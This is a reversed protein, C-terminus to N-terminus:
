KGAEFLCAALMQQELKECFRRRQSEGLGLHLLGQQTAKLDDLATELEQNRQVVLDLLKRAARKHYVHDSAQAVAALVDEARWPKTLFRYARARNIAEAAEAAGKKSLLDKQM